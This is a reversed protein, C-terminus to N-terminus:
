EIVKLDDSSIVYMKGSDLIVIPNLLPHRVTFTGKEGVEVYEDPAFRLQRTVSVRDNHKLKM